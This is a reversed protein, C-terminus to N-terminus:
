MDRRTDSRRGTGSCKVMRMLLLVLDEPQKEVFKTKRGARRWVCAGGEEEILCTGPHVLCVPSAERGM